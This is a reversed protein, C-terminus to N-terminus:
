NFKNFQYIQRWLNFKRVFMPINNKAFTIYFQGLWGINSIVKQFNGKPWDFTNVKSDETTTIYYLVLM